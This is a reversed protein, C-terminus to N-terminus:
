QRELLIGFVAMALSAILLYVDDAAISAVALVTALLYVVTSLAAKSM